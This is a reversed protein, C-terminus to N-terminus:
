FAYSLSVGGWVIESNETSRRIRNDVIQSYVVQAGASLRESLAYSGFAKLNMDAFGRSSVQTRDEYYFQNHNSSGHGLDASVGAKMADSIDMESKVGFNAYWGEVEEVDVYVAGFPVMMKMAEYTAAAYLETTNLGNARGAEAAYSHPYTYHIVGLEYSLDNCAAAYFLSYDVETQGMWKSTKGFTGENSLDHNAWVRAGFAGPGVQTSVEVQPQLVASNNVVAGRFVYATNVDASVAVNIDREQASIGAAAGVAVLILLKRM